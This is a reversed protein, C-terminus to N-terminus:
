ATLVAFYTPYFNIYLHFFNFLLLLLLLLLLPELPM